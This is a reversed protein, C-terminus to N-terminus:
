RCRERRQKMMRGQKREGGCLWPPLCCFCTFAHSWTQQVHSCFLGFFCLICTPYGWTNLAVTTRRRPANLIDTFTLSFSWFFVTSNQRTLQVRTKKGATETMRWLAEAKPNATLRWQKVGVAAWDNRRSQNREKENYNSAVRSTSDDTMTRHRYLLAAATWEACRSYM